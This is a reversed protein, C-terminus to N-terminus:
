SAAVQRTSILHAQELMQINVTCTSQPINLLQALQNINLEKDRLIRLMERRIKSNLAKAVIEIEDYQAILLRKEM